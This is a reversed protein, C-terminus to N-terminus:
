EFAFANRKGGSSSKQSAGIAACAVPAGTIAYPFHPARSVTIASFVPINKESCVTSESL